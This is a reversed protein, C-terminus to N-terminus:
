NTIVVVGRAILTNKDTIGQGTPASNTGGSLNITGSVYGGNAVYRALVHNVSAATLNNNSYDGNTGNTPVFVPLSISDLVANNSAVVGGSVTVLAPANISYIGPTNSALYGVGGVSQLVPYYAASQYNNPLSVFISLDGGVTKLSGIEIIELPNGGISFREGVSVLNPTGFNKLTGLGSYDIPGTAETMDHNVFFVTTFSVGTCHKPM